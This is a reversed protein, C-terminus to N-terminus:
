CGEGALTLVRRYISTGLRFRLIQLRELAPEVLELLGREKALLLVGLTGTIELGAMVAHRRADRDDLVLLCGPKELGLALAEKEGHGLGTVLPLLTRDRVSEVTLWRLEAIDPLTVGRRRGRAIEAEVAPPVAVSGFLSPLLHLLGAQYLYQLPSTNCIVGRVPLTM